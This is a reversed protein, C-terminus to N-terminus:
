PGLANPRNFLRATGAFAKYKEPTHRNPPAANCYKTGFVTSANVKAVVSDVIKNIKTHIM